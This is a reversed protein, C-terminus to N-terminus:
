HELSKKTIGFKKFNEKQEKKTMANELTYFDDKSLLKYMRLVEKELQNLILDRNDVIIENRIIRTSYYCLNSSYLLMEMSSLYKSRSVKIKTQPTLPKITALPKLNCRKPNNLKKMILM